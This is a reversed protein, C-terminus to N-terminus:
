QGIVTTPIQLTTNLRYCQAWSRLSPAM